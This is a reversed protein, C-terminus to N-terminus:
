AYAGLEAGNGTSRSGAARVGDVRHRSAAPRGGALARAAQCFGWGRQQCDVRVCQRIAWCPAPVALFTLIWVAFSHALPYFFHLVHAPTVQTLLQCLEPLIPAAAAGCSRLWHKLGKSVEETVLDDRACRWLVDRLVPWVHAHTSAFIQAHFNDKSAHKLVQEQLAEYFSTLRLATEVCRQRGRVKDSNDELEGPEALLKQLDSIAPWCIQLQAQVAMELPLAAVIFGLADMFNKRAASSIFNLSQASSSAAQGALLEIQSSLHTPCHFAINRLAQTGHFQFEQPNAALTNQVFSFIASVCSPLHSAFEPSSLRKIASDSRFLNLLASACKPSMSAITQLNHLVAFMFPQFASEVRHIFCTAVFILAEVQRWPFAAPTALVQGLTPWIVGMAGDGTLVCTSDDLMYLVEVDRFRSFNYEEDSGHSWADSNAPWQIRQVMASVLTSFLQVVHAAAPARAAPPGAAPAGLHHHAQSLAEWFLSSNYIAIGYRDPDSECYRVLQLMLNGFFLTAEGASAALQPVVVLGIDNLMSAFVKVVDDEERAIAANVREAIVPIASTLFNVLTAYEPEAARNRCHYAIECVLSGASEFLDDVDLAAFVPITSVIFTLASPLSTGQPPEFQKLWACICKFALQKEHDSAPVPRAADYFALLQQMVPFSARAFIRKKQPDARLSEEGFLELARLLLVPHPSLSSMTFEIPGAAPWSSSEVVLEYIGLILQTQVNKPGAPFRHCLHEFLRNILAGQGSIPLEVFNKTLKHKLINSANFYAAPDVNPAALIMDCISWSEVSNKFRDLYQMSENSGTSQGAVNMAAMARLVEEVRFQAM